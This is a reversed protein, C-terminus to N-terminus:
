QTIIQARRGVSAQDILVAPPNKPPLPAAPGSLNRLSAFIRTRTGSNRRRTSPMRRAETISTAAAAAGQEQGPWEPEWSGRRPGAGSLRTEM